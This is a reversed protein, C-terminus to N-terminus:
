SPLESVCSSCSSSGFSIIQAPNSCHKMRSAFVFCCVVISHSVPQSARVVRSTQHRWTWVAFGANALLILAALGWALVLVWMRVVNLTIEVTPLGPDGPGLETAGGNYVFPAIKVWDANNDNGSAPEFRVNDSVPEFVYAENSVFMVEGNTADIPLWNQIAYRQLSSVRTGTDKDLAVYGSVGAISTQKIFEFYETGSLFLTSKSSVAQCASLGLLITADYAYKAPNYRYDEGVLWESENLVPVQPAFFWENGGTLSSNNSTTKSYYEDYLKRKLQKSQEIFRSYTDGKEVIQRINGIGSLSRALNSDKPFTRGNLQHELNEFAWWHHMGNGVLGAEYAVEMLRDLVKKDTTLALVFRYQSEKLAEMAEYLLDESFEFESTRSEIIRAEMYLEDGDSRRGPEWGLKHIAERLNKHISRTFLHSEFIVFFHRVGLTDHLFRVFLESIFSDDSVTRGFLPFDKKDSLATSTSGPSVQPVGRLGTVMSTAKSIQSDIAGVFACPPKRPIGNGDSPDSKTYEDVVSFAHAPNRRTDEFSTSFTLPCRDNLGKVEEVISGDGNNLHDIALKMALSSEYGIGMPMTSVFPFIGVIECIASNGDEAVNLRNSSEENM